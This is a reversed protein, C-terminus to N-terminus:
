RAVAGASINAADGAATGGMWASSDYTTRPRSVGYRITGMFADVKAARNALVLETGGSADDDEVQKFMAELRREVTYGFATFFSIRNARSAYHSKLYVKWADHAQQILHPVYLEVRALDDTHGIAWWLSTGRRILTRVGLGRAITAAVLEALLPSNTGGVEYRRQEIKVATKQAKADNAAALMADSVGWKVMLKEAAETFSEREGEHQTAEAKALLANIKEAYSSM